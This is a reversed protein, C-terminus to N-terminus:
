TWGYDLSLLQEKQFARTMEQICSWVTWRRVFTKLNVCNDQVSSSPNFSESSAGHKKRVNPPSSFPIFLKSLALFISKFHIRNPPNRGETCSEDELLIQHSKRGSTTIKFSKKKYSLTYIDLVLLEVTTCACVYRQVMKMICYQENREVREKRSIVVKERKTCQLAV